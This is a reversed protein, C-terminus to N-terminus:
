MGARLAAVVDALGDRCRQDRGPRCVVVVYYGLDVPALWVATDDLRVRLTQGPAVQGAVAAFSAGVVDVDFASMDGIAAAVREGEGDCFVAARAGLSRGAAGFAVVQQLVGQFPVRLTYCSRCGLRV